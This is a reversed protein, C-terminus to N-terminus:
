FRKTGPVPLSSSCFSFVTEGVWYQHPVESIAAHATTPNTWEDQLQQHPVDADVPKWCTLRSASLEAPNVPCNTNCPTFRESRPRVHKRVVEGKAYNVVWYDKSKGKRGIISVEPPPPPVAADDVPMMDYAPTPAPDSHM